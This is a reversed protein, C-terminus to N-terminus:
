QLCCFCGQVPESGRHDSKDEHLHIGSIGFTDSSCYQGNNARIIEDILNILTRVQERNGRQTNDFVAYRGDCSSVLESVCSSSRIKEDLSQNGLADGHTFLVMTFKSLHQDSLRTLVRIVQIDGRSLRGIKVVFVFVHPGPETQQVLIQIEYMLRDLTLEEATLGSSDVVMIEGGEVPASGCVPRKGIEDFDCDIDFVRSGLMMNGASSKGSGNRGILIIRRVELTQSKSVGVDPPSLLCVNFTTKM